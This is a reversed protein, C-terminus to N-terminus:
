LHFVRFIRIKLFDLFVFFVMVLALLGCVQSLPLPTMLVGNIAMVGVAIIDFVSAAIMWVSPCSRWFHRRERVLYVTAQGTFVLTLFVVTRLEGLSLHLIESGAFLIFFSLVLILSAFVGGVVTLKKIDWKDPKQSFSVNDTSISMTVFDNAFLLLVILLQSIIFNNTVVLGLGLLVSIELTKIIKNLTYTLMRQYIRRSTKIAEVVDILGPNTLVVSASAKAVDSANSMAIGVEAKKLAPADNVGDGTMGCIYGQRQLLQIIQFKDQPFVGAIVDNEAIKEQSLMYLADRTIAKPGIGVQSALARATAESDGTVMMVRVGLEHIKQISDKSTERPPDQLAIFGILTKKQQTRFLVALVRSGDASLRTLDDFVDKGGTSKMLLESPAGKLVHGEQGHYLICAETCKREPDFPIFSLKQVSSFESQSKAAARVIALDIPDQTSEECAFSALALLDDHSYPSYSCVESVSLSNQTITGTKDVCVITMAAAEEIASLRTVLVGVKALEIAGLATSLAYTAPLAVPVSAILLLLSFPILEFLSLGQYVAYSFVFGVLVIDFAILYTIISFITRQLHSPTKTIRMIEATKGFYTNEGTSIIQAYAEGHKVVSGAYTIANVPPEVPLSEGTIASQDIVLHGQLVKADAPVIDGMRLRVIDQPVLQQASILRWENDRLVRAKVDLRGRLLRLANKAKGEQFFRVSANFVILLGIVWAEAYRGLFLELLIVIELMWPIPGWFTSFFVLLPHRKEEPLTNSGFLKLQRQAQETTLGSFEIM